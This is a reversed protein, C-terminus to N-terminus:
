ALEYFLILPRGNGREFHELVREFTLQTTVREDNFRTWPPIAHADDTRVFTMCHGGAQTEGYRLIVSRLRYLTDITENGDSGAIAVTLEESFTLFPAPSMGLEPKLPMAYGM